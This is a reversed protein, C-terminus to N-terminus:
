KRDASFGMREFDQATFHDPNFKGPINLATNARNRPTFNNYSTNYNAFRQNSGSNQEPLLIHPELQAFKEESIAYCKKLQEKSKFSEGVVQKYKMITAVQRESFGLNKWQSQTLENPDFDQIKTLEASIYEVKEDAAPPATQPTKTNFYYLGSLLIAGSTAFGLFYNRAASLQIHSRM